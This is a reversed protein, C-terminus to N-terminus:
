CKYSDGPEALSSEGYIQARKSNDSILYQGEAIFFISNRCLDEKRM